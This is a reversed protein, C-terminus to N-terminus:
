QQVEQYETTDARRGLHYVHHPGFSVDDYPAGSSNHLYAHGWTQASFGVNTSSYRTSSEVIKGNRDAIHAQFYRTTTGAFAEAWVDIYVVIPSMEAPPSGVTRSVLKATTFDYKQLTTGDSVCFHLSGTSGLARTVVCRLTTSTQIVALNALSTAIGMGLRIDDHGPHGVLWRYRITRGVLSGGASGFRNIAANGTMLIGRATTTTAASLMLGCDDDWAGSNNNTYEWASPNSAANTSTFTSCVGLGQYATSGAASTPLLAGFGAGTRMGLMAELAHLPEWGMRVVKGRTTSDLVDGQIALKVAGQASETAAPLDSPDVLGGAGLGCYGNNAGKESEKQYGTHPDAAAVHAALAADTYDEADSLAAAASGSPDAGVDAADLTVVPGADGNVSTVGSAPQDAFALGAAETDDAVLMQGNTGPRVLEFRSGNWGILDGKRISRLLLALTAVLANM